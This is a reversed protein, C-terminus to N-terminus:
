FYRRAAASFVMPPRFSLGGVPLAGPRCRARVIVHESPLADTQCRTRGTVNGAQCADSLAAARYHPRVINLRFVSTGKLFGHIHNNRFFIEFFDLPQM